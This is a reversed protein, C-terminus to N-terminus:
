NRIAADRVKDAAISASTKLSPPKRSSVAEAAFFSRGIYGTNVFERAFEALHALVQTLVKDLQAPWALQAGIRVQAANVEGAHARARHLAHSGSRWRM